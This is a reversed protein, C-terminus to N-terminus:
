RALRGRWGVPTKADDPPVLLEHDTPLRRRSEDMESMDDLATRLAARPRTESQLDIRVMQGSFECSALAFSGDASFDM